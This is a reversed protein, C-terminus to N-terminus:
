SLAAKEKYIIYKKQNLINKEVLPYVFFRPICQLARLFDIANRRARLINGSLFQINAESPTLIEFDGM